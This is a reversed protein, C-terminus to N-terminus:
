GNRYSRTLRVCNRSLPSSDDDASPLLDRFVAGASVSPLQDADGLIVLRADPRLADLLRSTLELDLMSGEDVVVVRAELPNNRHYRFRRRTPPYGLLRHVTTPEPYAESARWDPDPSLNERISEGIRYAAKGTPAALAIKNPALGLGLLVKLLALM